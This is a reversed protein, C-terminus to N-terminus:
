NGSTVADLQRLARFWNEVRWIETVKAGSEETWPTMVLESRPDRRNCQEETTKDAEGGPAELYTWQLRDEAQFTLCIRYDAVQYEFTRVALITKNTSSADRVHLAQPLTLAAVPASVLAAILAVILAM